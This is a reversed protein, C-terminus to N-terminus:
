SLPSPYCPYSFNGESANPCGANNVTLVVDSTKLPSATTTISYPVSTVAGSGGPSLPVNNSWAYSTGTTITANLEASKGYCIDSFPPDITVEPYPVNFFKVAAADSLEAPCVGSKVLTRYYM